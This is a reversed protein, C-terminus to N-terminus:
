WGGVKYRVIAYGEKSYARDRAASGGVASGTGWNQARTHERVIAINKASEDLEIFLVVTTGQPLAFYDIGGGTSSESVTGDSSVKYELAIPNAGPRTFQLQFGKAAQHQLVFTLEATWHSATTMSILNAGALAYFDAGVEPM